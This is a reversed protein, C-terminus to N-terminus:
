DNKRFFVSGFIKKLILFILAGCAAVVAVSVYLAAAKARGVNAFSLVSPEGFILKGGFWWVVEFNHMLLYMLSLLILTKVLGSITSVDMSGGAGFPSNKSM